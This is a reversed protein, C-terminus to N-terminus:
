EYDFAPTKTVENESLTTNNCINKVGVKHRYPKPDGKGAFGTFNIRTVPVDCHVCFLQDEDDQEPPPADISVEYTEEQDRSRDLKRHAWQLAEGLLERGLHLLGLM